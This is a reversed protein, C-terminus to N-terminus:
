ASPHASSCQDKAVGRRQQGARQHQHHSTAALTGKKGREKRGGKLSPVSVTLTSSLGPVESASDLRMPVRASCSTAPHGLHGLHAAAGAAGLQVFMGLAHM